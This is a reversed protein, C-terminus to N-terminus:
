ADTISKSVDQSGYKTYEYIRSEVGKEEIEKRTKKSIYRENQNQTTAPPPPELDSNEWCDWLGMKGVGDGSIERVM